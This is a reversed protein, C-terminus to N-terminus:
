TLGQSALKAGEVLSALKAWCVSPAVRDRGIFTEFGCDTGGVVREQGLLNAYTRLRQAVLEPHEVFNTTTDVVGPILYKDDPLNFDEFVKWEHGHRPNAAELSIGAPRVSTVVDVIDALDVDTTHPSEYNGWCVHVRMREPSLGAVAANLAEVAVAIERRFDDLGLSAFVSNHSMALDPCDLQLILGAGVIAEYESRMADVIASLYEERDAYFRNEYFMSIVGPSAASMFLNERPVSAAQAAALLADIESRIAQPDRVSIPSTCPPLKASPRGRLRVSMEAFDPHAQLDSSPPRATAEGSFGTLRDRVYTSYGNKSQEGDNIIEIGVDAQMRVVQAIAQASLADM